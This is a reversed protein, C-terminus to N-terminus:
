LSCNKWKGCHKRSQEIFIKEIISINWIFAFITEFNDAGYNHKKIHSLNLSMYYQRHISYLWCDAKMFLNAQVNRHRYVLSNMYKKKNKIKVFALERFRSM